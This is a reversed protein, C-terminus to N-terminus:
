DNSEGDFEARLLLDGLDTRIDSVMKRHQESGSEKLAQEVKELRLFIDMIEGSPTTDNTMSVGYQVM